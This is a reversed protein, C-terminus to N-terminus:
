GRLTEVEWVHLMEPVGEYAPLDNHSSLSDVQQLILVADPQAFFLCAM